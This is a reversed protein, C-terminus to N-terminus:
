AGPLSQRPAPLVSSWGMVVARSLGSSALGSKNSGLYNGVRGSTKMTDIVDKVLEFALLKWLGERVGFCCHAEKELGLSQSFVSVQNMEPCILQAQKGM